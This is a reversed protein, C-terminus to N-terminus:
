CLGNPCRCLGWSSVKDSQLTDPMCASVCRGDECCGLPRTQQLQGARELCSPLKSGQWAEEQLRVGYLVARSGQKTTVRTLSGPM